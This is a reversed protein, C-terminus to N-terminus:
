WTRNNRLKPIALCGPLDHCKCLKPIVWKRVNFIYIYERYVKHNRGGVSQSQIFEYM